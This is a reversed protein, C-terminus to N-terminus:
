AEIDAPDDKKTLQMQNLVENHKSSLFWLLTTDISYQEHCSSMYENIALIDLWEQYGKFRIQNLCRLTSDYAKYEIESLDKNKWLNVLQYLGLTYQWEVENKNLFYIVKSAIDNKSYKHGDFITEKPLSYKVENFYKDTEELENIIDKEIEKLKEVDKEDRISKQFEDLEKKLLDQVEEYNLGQLKDKTM